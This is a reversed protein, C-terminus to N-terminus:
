SLLTSSSTYPSASSSLFATIEDAAREGSLLAGALSGQYDLSTAEGAWFLPPTQKALDDIDTDLSGVPWYSYAGLAFPDQSWKTSLVKAPEPTRYGAVADLITRLKNARVKPDLNEISRANDGAFTAELVTDGLELADHDLLTILENSELRILIFPKCEPNIYERWWAHTYFLLVKAYAGVGLRTIADLKAQPLLSPQFFSTTILKKLVGLPLTILVSRTYLSSLSGEKNHNKYDVKVLTTKQYKEKKKSPLSSFITTLKSVSAGLIADHPMVKQILPHLAQCMGSRVLAHGGKHDGYNGGGFDSFERLQLYQISDGLWLELLKTHLSNAQEGLASALSADEDAAAAIPAIKELAGLWDNEVMIIETENMRKNASSGILVVADEKILSSECWFNGRSVPVILDNNGLLHIIPNTADTGHIWAAGADHASDNEFGRVRGGFEDRAEIIKIKKFGTECLRRYAALGAGGGGVIIIDQVEDEILTM